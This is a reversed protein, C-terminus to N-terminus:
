NAPIKTGSIAVSEAPRPQGNELQEALRLAVRLAGLIRSALAADETAMWFQYPEEKPLPGEYPDADPVRVRGTKDVAEPFANALEAEPLELADTMRANRVQREATEFSQIVNKLAATAEQVAALAVEFPEGDIQTVQM